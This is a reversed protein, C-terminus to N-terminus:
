STSQSVTCAIVAARPSSASPSPCLPRGGAGAGINWMLIAPRRCAVLAKGTYARPDSSTMDDATRRISLEVAATLTPDIRAGDLERLERAYNVRLERLELREGAAHRASLYDAVTALEPAGSLFDRAGPPTAVVFWQFAPESFFGRARSVNGRNAADVFALVRRAIRRPTCAPPLGTGTRTVIVAVNTARAGEDAQDGSRESTTACAGALLVSAALLVLTVRKM